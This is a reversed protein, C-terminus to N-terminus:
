IVTPIYSRRRRKYIHRQKAVNVFNFRGDKQNVPLLRMAAIKGFVSESIHLAVVFFNHYNGACAVDIQVVVQVRYRKVFDFSKEFGIQLLLIIKHVNDAYCTM